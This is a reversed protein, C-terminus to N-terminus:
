LAQLLRHIGHEAKHKGADHGPCWHSRSCEGGNFRAYSASHQVLVCSVVMGEELEETPDVMVDDADKTM